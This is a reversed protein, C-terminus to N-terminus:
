AIDRKPKKTPANINIGPVPLSEALLLLTDVTPQHKGSLLTHVTIRTIGAERAIVTKKKGSGLIAKRIKRTAQELTM